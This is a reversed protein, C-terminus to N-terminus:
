RYEYSYEKSLVERIKKRARSLNVKVANVQLGTIESVEANNYGEVDRLHVVMKQLLPLTSIIGNIIKCIDKLESQKEPGSDKASIFDDNIDAYQMKVARFMDICANRTIVMALSDINRYKDLEDRKIWLKAFVNQMIDEAEEKNGTLRMAFRFIKNKLPLVQIKFENIDM